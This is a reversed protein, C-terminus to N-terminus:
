DIERTVKPLPKTSRLANPAETTLGLSHLKGIEPSTRLSQYFNRIGASIQLSYDTTIFREGDVIQIHSGGRVLSFFRDFGAAPFQSPRQVSFLAFEMPKGSNESM